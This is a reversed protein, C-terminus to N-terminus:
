DGQFRWQTINGYPLPLPTLVVRGLGVHAHVAGVHALVAFHIHRPGPRLLLIDGAIWSGDDVNRFKSDTFFAQVRGEFDGRLRYDTPIEFRYGAEFLCASVVGVCDLGTEPSRGHLRFPAGLCTLACAAISAQPKTQPPQLRIAVPTVPLYTM